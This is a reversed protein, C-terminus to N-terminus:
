KLYKNLLEMLKEESIPKSIYDDCGAQIAKERDGMQAYATQAIVPLGPKMNKIKKTALFGNMVPMKIDMLVLSIEPNSKIMEVAVLGNNAFLNNIKYFELIERLFLYNIKEDDVILVVSKTNIFQSNKVVKKEKLIQNDIIQQKYPITFYFTSGENPMSEIWIEGGLREVLAKSISLGLGTGGYNRSSGEDVQRFREFILNQHEYDIGIGSDKVFVQVQNELIEYGFHIFGSHTFKISNNLLNSLIQQFRVKDTELICSEQYNPKLFSFELNLEEVKPKYLDYIYEMMENLNFLDHNIHVQNTEIKSIDIIDDIISLLQTGSKRIIEIFMERKGTDLNNRALMDSFGLLGNMPTRIEHSINALFATKLRDSEEAKEKAEILHQIMEKREFVIAIEHAILELLHCSSRNFADKNTYSQLVIVGTPKKNLIIPVGLWCKAPSGKLELKHELAFIDREDENLLLTKGEKVVQGSLSNEAKWEVFDDKEDVFVVKKFIETESNYTAVFFNSTDIVKSLENRVLILLDELTIDTMFMRAIEHLIHQVNEDFKRKTIDNSIGVLARIKGKEDYVPSASLSIQFESGDKRTNWLEGQFSGKKTEELVESHIGVSSKSSWVMEIKKGFLEDWTYRYTNIFSDNVFIINNDLDTVSVCDNISKIAHALIKVEEEAKKRETIDKISHSFAIMNNENDFIPWATAEYFRGNQTIETTEAKKTRISLSCPCASLPSETGHSLEFCKKGIIQERTLSLSKCGAENVELFIHDTSIVCVIDSISNFTDQWKKASIKMEKESRILAKEAKIRDTVDHIISYLLNKGQTTILGSYVEVNRKEGNSLYHEILFFNREGKIALSYIKNLETESLKNIDSMSMSTLINYPWGYFKCAAPNADVIQRNDPDIILMIANNSYFLSKYREESEKLSFEVLQKQKQNEYNKIADIVAFPLRTMNDKLIYDNAGAKMCQVATEENISGTLIIFPIQPCMEKAIKLAEMGNFMPMSYDSIILDPDFEKIANKFDKETEVRISEFDIDNKRLARIAMESDVPQDEVLLFKYKQM